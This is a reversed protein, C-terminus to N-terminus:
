SDNNNYKSFMVKIESKMLGKTEIMDFKFYVSGLINFLSFIFFTTVQGLYFEFFPFLLVVIFSFFWNLATCLSMEHSTLIEGSYIWCIPGISSVFFALYLETFIFPIIYHISYQSSLGVLFLCLSMGSCGFILTKKRGTKDIFPMLLMSAIVKVFASFLTLVRAMFVGSGFQEFISTAYSLIANIGSLQQAVSLAVGIRMSKRVCHRCSVVGWYEIEGDKGDGGSEKIRELVQGVFEEKYIFKLSEVAEENKGKSLLWLPSEHNFYCIFLVLQIFAMFAPFAFMFLCFDNMPDTNYDKTPLILAFSFAFVTGICGFIVMLTGLQGSIDPPSFESIYLPIQMSYVGIGLGSLFRGLAFSSTSPLITSISALIIITDALMLSSRRGIRHVTCGSFLAGFM